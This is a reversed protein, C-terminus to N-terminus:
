PQTGLRSATRLPQGRRAGRLRPQARHARAWGPGAARPTVLAVQMGLQCGPDQGIKDNRDGVRHLAPRVRPVQPQVLGAPGLGARGRRSQAGQQQGEQVIVPPAGPPPGPDAARAPQSDHGAAAPPGARMRQAREDRRVQGHRPGFQDRPWAAVSDTIQVRSSEAGHWPQRPGADQQEVVGPRRPRTGLRRGHRQPQGARAAHDDDHEAPVDGGARSRRSYREGTQRVPGLQARDMDCRRWARGEIGAPRCHRATRGRYM